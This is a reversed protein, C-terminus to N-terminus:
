CDSKVIYHRLLDVNVVAKMREDNWIKDTIIDDKTINYNHRTVFREMWKCIDNYRHLAADKTLNFAVVTEPQLAAWDAPPWITNLPLSLSTVTLSSGVVIGDTPDSQRNLVGHTIAHLLIELGGIPQGNGVEMWSCGYDSDGSNQYSTYHAFPHLERHATLEPCDVEYATWSDAENILGVPGTPGYRSIGWDLSSRATEKPAYAKGTVEGGKFITIPIDRGIMDHLSKLFASATGYTEPVDSQTEIQEDIWDKCRNISDVHIYFFSLYAPFNKPTNADVVKCGDTQVAGARIKYRRERYCFLLLIVSLIVILSLLVCVSSM